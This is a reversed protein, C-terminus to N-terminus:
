AIGMGFRIFQYGHMNVIDRRFVDAVQTRAPHLVQADILRDAHAYVSDVSGRGGLRGVFVIEGLQYLFLRERVLTITQLEAKHCSFFVVDRVREDLRSSIAYADVCAFCKRLTIKDPIRIFNDNLGSVVKATNIRKAPTIEGFADAWGWAITERM